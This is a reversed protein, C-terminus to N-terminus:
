KIYAYTYKYLSEGFRLRCLNGPKFNNKFAAMSSTMGDTVLKKKTITRGGSLTTGWYVTGTKGPVTATTHTSSPRPIGLGM